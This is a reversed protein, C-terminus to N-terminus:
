RRGPSKLWTTVEDLSKRSPAGAKAYGDRAQAALAIARQSKGEAWLAQALLFRVEALTGADPQAEAIALARDLRVRARAAASRQLEVRAISTLPGILYPHKPGLAKEDISIAQEYDRLAEDLRGLKRTAEGMGSLLRAYESNDPGFAKVEIARRFYTLAETPQGMKIEAYGMNGLCLAADVSRPSKKQWIDYARELQAFAERPRDLQLLTLGMNNCAAAVNPHDPQVRELFDLAGGYQALAREHEGQEGFVDAMGIMVGALQPHDPGLVRKLRALAREYDALADAYGALHFHIEGLLDDNQALALDDPHPARQQLALGAKADRLAEPYKGEELFLAARKLHFSARLLDRQLRQTLADAIDAWHHGEDPQSLQVGIVYVLEVAAAAATEEHHGLLAAAFARHFPEAARKYDGQAGFLTGLRLQVDATLPAYALAEAESAASSALRLAEDFHAALGLSYARALVLRVEEVRRHAGPDRPPPVPAKLAATDACLQLDPLAQASRAANKIVADDAAAFQEALAGLGTLRGTLCSMRLDLLEQSQEHRVHTAECSDARMALWAQAYTDFTREVAILAAEAYPKASRRFAARVAARRPPDWVGALKADGGACARVERRNVVRATVGASAVVLLVAAVGFWRRRAVRPDARLAALLAEMSPYRDAPRLALGKVLVQRLWRPVTAGPPPELIRDNLINDRIMEPTLGAFPFTRYLAWYLSVCFSFQDARADTPQGLHQEPAMFRPTGVTSGVHTLPASLLNPTVEGNSPTRHEPHSSVALPTPAAADAQASGLHGITDELEVPRPAAQDDLTPPAAPDRALAPDDAGAQAIRALGFDLVRVRGDNGIMVNDPKFDRHVLGARHAAALGDGAALFAELIERQTRGPEGLWSRVTRGEIFEMAIFVSGGFTGVDHVALVNPHTLRALAQAERLLRERQAEASDGDSLLLKLAISRDLQPDYAKYVVGMGGRGLPELLVYRGVCTGRDLHPADDV